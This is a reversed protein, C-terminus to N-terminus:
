GAAAATSHRSRVGAGAAFAADRGKEDDGAHPSGGAEGGPPAPAAEQGRQIVLLDGGEVQDMVRAFVQQVLPDLAPYGRLDHTM